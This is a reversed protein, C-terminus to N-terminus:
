KLLDGVGVPPAASPSQGKPVLTMYISEYSSLYVIKGADIPNLALLYTIANAGTRETAPDSARRPTVETSVDLVQVNSLVLKVTQGNPAGKIVGYVNVRDDVGVYGAVGPVFPIQVAVAQMGAPIDVSERRVTSSKLMSERLQSGIEIDQGLLRGELQVASTIADPAQESVPIRRAEVAKDRILDNGSAGATLKKTAVYVTASRAGPEPSNNSSSKDNDRVVLLVLAGGVILALVGLALPLNSRRALTIETGTTPDGGHEPCAIGVEM